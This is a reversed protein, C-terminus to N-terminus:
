CLPTGVCLLTVYMWGWPRLPIVMSLFLCTFCVMFPLLFVEFKKIFLFSPAMVFACILDSLCSFSLTTSISSGLRDVVAGGSLIGITGTLLVLGGIWLDTGDLHFMAEAIKAGWYSLVGLVGVHFCNGLVPVTYAPHSFILCTDNWLTKLASVAGGPCCSIVNSHSCTHYGGEPSSRQGTNITLPPVRFCYIIFPAMIFTEVFFTSRWTGFIAVCVTGYVYGLAYGCPIALHLIAIWLTVKDRPANDDTM